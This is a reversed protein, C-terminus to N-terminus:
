RRIITSGRLVLRPLTPVVIDEPAGGGIQRVLAQVATRGLEELPMAVTDIPPDLYGALPMDDYAILSVDHPVRIGRRKFAHLAGVSQSLASTFVATINPNADFLADAGLVGGAEGFAVHQIPAAEIQLGEAAATFAAARMRATEVEAPGAIHGIVQHGLDVLREVALWSATALEMTVNRGSGEVARNVFVHPINQRALSEPLEHGRRASGVLMGDVHGAAVLNVFSDNSVQAGEVVLITYGLLRAEEFVGQILRSYIPNTLEEVMLALARAPMGALARATVNPYYGLSHAADFVRQRTEPRASIGPVENLIKSATSPSVGALTAVDSLRSRIPRQGVTKDM